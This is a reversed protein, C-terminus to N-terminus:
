LEDGCEDLVLDNAAVCRTRGSQPPPEDAPPPPAAAEDEAGDDIVLDEAGFFTRPRRRTQTPAPEAGGGGGWASSPSAAPAPAPAAPAPAPASAPAAAGDAAPEKLGLAALREEFTSGEAARTMTKKLENKTKQAEKLEKYKDYCERKGRGVIGSIQRWRQQKEVTSPVDKCAKKLKNVDEKTWPTTEKKPRATKPRATKPRAGNAISQMQDKSMTSRPLTAAMMAGLADDGGFAAM